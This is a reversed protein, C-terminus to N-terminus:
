MYRLVAKKNWKKSCLYSFSSFSSSSFSSPQPTFLCKKPQLAVFHKLWLHCQTDHLSSFSVVLSIETLQKKNTSGLGKLEWSHGLWFKEKCYWYLILCVLSLFFSVLIWLVTYYVTLLIVLSIAPTFPNILFLRLILLGLIFNYKSNIHSAYQLTKNLLHLFSLLFIHVDDGSCWKWSM